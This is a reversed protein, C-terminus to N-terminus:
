LARLRKYISHLESMGNDDLMGLCDSTFNGKIVHKHTIMAFVVRNFAHVINNCNSFSVTTDKLAISTLRNFSSKDEKSLRLNKFKSCRNGKYFSKVAKIKGTEEYLIVINGADSFLYLYSVINLAELSQLKDSIMRQAIVSDEVYGRSQSIASITILSFCSITIIKKLAM